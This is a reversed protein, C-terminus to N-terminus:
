ELIIDGNNDYLPDGLLARFQNLENRINNVFIVQDQSHLIINMGNQAWGLEPAINFSFHNGVSKNHEKAKGIIFDVADLFVKNDYQEPVGLNISLDQPGIVIGDLGKVELISDLNEM